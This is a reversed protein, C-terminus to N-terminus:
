EWGELRLLLACLKKLLVNRQSHREYRGFKTNNWVRTTTGVMSEDGYNSLKAANLIRSSAVMHQMKHVKPTVEWGM